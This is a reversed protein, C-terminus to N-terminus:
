FRVYFNLYYSTGYGFFYRPGFIAGNARSQDEQLDPYATKRGQEFGGTKYEQDLINTIVAFFGVYYDNIKWSKGGIANVLFYDGFEEQKLIDKAVEPDYNSYPQGDFDTSFNASRALNNVDIYANSFYNTTTGVWWFDPDRYEFGVQYAREPGGAIHYNKLNTTGGGFVLPGEFDDSTLYLNPNNNYIYQGVSAAAKLKITPTVQAEIGLEAGLHRKEAGKIVEQVFAGEDYGLGTLNETFYFGIDTADKINAYFGTLRAKVIPSRFIYSLDATTIKEDELGIVVDNNQRANSFTNRISPAKTLYGANFDVLHRGTVKYTAGGKVKFNTFSVKESKGLSRSGPYNGNEYLGNRQYNTSSVEAGTYFDIKNYKFQTQAFGTLVDANIDYNYKYRDGEKVIRNRNQLDSQAIDGVSIQQNQADEGAFFDVDLYGTGGLLDKLEAFNESKLNRYNASATFLINEAFSTNLITNATLQTDDVRDEQIAYIANGGNTRVISNARYLSEWDLQGDNIFEQEALYANRYDATTPDDDQLFYSPLRQYYNGLPNRAGGIYAEEGDINILRTGGNDIRTNGMKGFQYGLNTNLTTKDSIDWYHNLMIVPEEIERIRSNRKGGDQYGWNPNYRRDKLDKMEQTIATSKGRRNPTYFASFNLSHDDSLQKEVSAFISNADYLTGDIYGENGFRRSVLVSYAWGNNLLGSNYSGMVRGSYSRNAMAYSIRGGERYQSARMVINTTGAIGGFTYDNPSLGMSFERNRQADNLGGWNSWQPRGNYQKNMEIGNILVKGNENDLGRPRFFTASFDFAAANLFVDRSAQLLGSINFSTGDDQDLENNSLSIVGIQAEVETLDVELLIPDLNITEGNQIIIPIRQSIYSPTAVLLVQEGQPLDSAKISFTGEASTEASFNSSQIHVEVGTIPESSDTDVIRGMVVTDQAQFQFFSLLGIWLVFLYQKM